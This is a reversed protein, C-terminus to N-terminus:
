FNAKQVRSAGKASMGAWVGWVPYQSTIVEIFAPKNKANEDLARRLAPAIDNPDSIRESHMGIGEVSKASNFVDSKTLNCTYPEQGAGWFGPGYGAYGGNNLHIVTVGLNYRIPAELNGHMYGLGADGTVVVVQRKPFALKAAVAGALTFGLTSVNGWGFYAHPIVADYVTSIQDRASGSEGSIFSNMPDMVKFMENYVRYPNIPTETSEMAERYKDMKQAKLGAVEAHLEKNPARGGGTQKAIEQSLQKLTLKADGLLAQSVRYSKNIDSVDVVLQIVTKSAANAIAHSFRSPSLSTGIAFLVDCNELYYNAPIDRIGLSLAHNEPFASKGKLTALVPIQALEAFELLEATADSRFVGEGVYLMPKKAALLTKVVAKVDDPDAQSRWGKVVQYPFQEEDYDGLGTPVQLLVPGPKGTKLYTYARAMFDPVRKAQTIEATWKTIHSYFRDAVFHSNGADVASVADTICLIPSNDEFAQAIAGTGFQLGAANSAGLLTTVGFAKGDSIRSFADAVGVGYREDRMMILPIQGEDGIANNVKCSPFHSVFPTGEAKLIRAIGRSANIM